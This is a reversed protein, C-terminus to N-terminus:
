AATAEVPEAGVVQLFDLGIDYWPGDKFDVLARGNMNETVVRGVLGQFRALEARSTDATVQRNTYQRKLEEIEEFQMDWEGYRRASSSEGWAALPASPPSIGFREWRGPRSKKCM